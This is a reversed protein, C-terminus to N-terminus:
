SFLRALLAPSGPLHLEVLHQGTYSKPAHFTYTQASCSTKDALHCRGILHTWPASPAKPEFITSALSHADPGSIRIVGRAASSPASSIAVITDDPCFM